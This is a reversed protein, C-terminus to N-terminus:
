EILNVKVIRITSAATFDEFKALVFDLEKIGAESVSFHNTHVFHFPLYEREQGPHCV